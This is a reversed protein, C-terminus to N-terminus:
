SVDCYVVKGNLMSLFLDGVAGLRHIHDAMVSVLFDIGSVITITVCWRCGGLVVGIACSLVLGASCVAWVPNGNSWIYCSQVSPVSIGYHCDVEVLSHVEALSHVELQTM